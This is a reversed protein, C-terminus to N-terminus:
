QNSPNDDAAFQGPFIVRQEKIRAISGSIVVVDIPGTLGGTNPDRFSKIMLNILKATEDGSLFQKFGPNPTIGYWNYKAHLNLPIVGGKGQGAPGEIIVVSGRSQRGGDRGVTNITNGASDAGIGLDGGTLVMTSGADIIPIFTVMDGENGVPFQQGNTNNDFRPWVEAGLAKEPVLLRGAVGAAGGAVIHLIKRRSIIEKDM